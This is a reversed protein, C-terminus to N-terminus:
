GAAIHWRSVTTRYGPLSVAALATTVALRDAPRGKHVASIVGAVVGPLAM